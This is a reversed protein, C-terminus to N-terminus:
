TSKTQFYVSRGLLSEPTNVLVSCKMKGLLWREREKASHWIAFKRCFDIKLEGPLETGGAGLFSCVRFEAM